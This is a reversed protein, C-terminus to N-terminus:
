AHRAVVDWTYWDPEPAGAIFLHAPMLDLNIRDRDCFVRLAVNDGTGIVIWNGFHEADPGSEKWYNFGWAKLIRHIKSFIQAKM